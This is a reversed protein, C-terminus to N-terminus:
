IVPAPTSTRKETREVVTHKTEKKTKFQKKHQEQKDRKTKAHVIDANNMSPPEKM